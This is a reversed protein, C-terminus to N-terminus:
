DFFHKMYLLTIIVNENLLCREHVTRIYHGHLSIMDDIDFVQELKKYFNETESLLIQLLFFNNKPHIFNILYLLLAIV